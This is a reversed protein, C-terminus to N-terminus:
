VVVNVVVVVVVVVVDDDVVVVVAMATAATSAAVTARAHHERAEGHSEGDRADRYPLAAPRRPLPPPQHLLSVLLALVSSLSSFPM